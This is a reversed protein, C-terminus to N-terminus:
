KIKLGNGKKYVKYGKEKLIEIKAQETANGLAKVLLKQQEEPPLKTPVKAFEKTTKEGLIRQYEAREPGNFVIKQKDVTIYKPAVRPIHTTEGTLAFIDNIRQMEPSPNYENIFAPNILVNFPNNGEDQYTELPQGLTGYKDPLSSSLGPIRNKARNLSEEVMNPSYTEKRQNDALQKIQNLLTPVFSAPIGELIQSIGTTINGRGGSFLTQFGQMVPQDAFANIGTEFAQLLTGAIGEAKGDHADIDAGIALPIAQPQLWDYSIITDGKQPKLDGGFVLRKLASVNIRYDGFGSERNMEALDYDEVSKSTIIGLKHLLAGTGFLGASGVLARSFAETFAKQNFQNGTLTQGAQLIVKVFGAPSYDIGRMLLNAPTKPYKIIFDGVGFEKGGNLLRKIGSFLASLANDDQFTRYLGDLHAIKEMEETPKDVKAAKMQNRLSEDYAAKYFARDTARLEINLAKEAAGLLGSRFVKGKPLDFKSIINSTDIGKLADSLGLEFGEKAGKLQTPLSPLVKTRKGTVLSLGKDLGAGVVDSINEMATFGVNGVTNRIATKPNLLQAMTQISALKRAFPVPVQSAILDLIKALAIDKERGDTMAGIDEMKSKIEAMIEPKVQVKGALKGTKKALDRNIGQITKTYYRQMGEPTMKGWLRLSQIAQGQSTANESVLQILDTADEFRGEKNANQVLKLAVTNSLDTGPNDRVFREAEKIDNNKIIRNAWEVTSENTHVNYAGRSGPVMENILDNKLEPSAWDSKATSVGLSRVRQGNALEEMKGPLSFARDDIFLPKEDVKSETSEKGGPSKESDKFDGTGRIRRGTDLGASEASTNRGMLIPPLGKSVDNSYAEYSDFGGENKLIDYNQKPRLGVKNLIYDPDVFRGTHEFRKVAREAAKEIPLDVLRLHVNYGNAKLADRIGKVSEITRGVVPLVINDDNKFARYLVMDKIDNSENHVAGAFKGDNFEPLLEKAMDSDIILSGTDKAIPDSLASSKGAAPPGMIIYAQKNKNAAGTGYLNDVIEQRLAQREPTNILHTSPMNAQETRAKIIDPTDYPTISKTKTLQLSEIKPTNFKIDKFAQYGKQLGKGLLGFGLEGGGWLAASEATNKLAEPLSEGKIASEGAGMTAGTAAAGTARAALSPLGKAILSATVPAGIVEGGVLFLPTDTLMSTAGSAIKELAGQPHYNKAQQAQEELIGGANNAPVFKEFITRALNNYEGHQAALKLGNAIDQANTERPGITGSGFEPMNAETERLAGMGSLTPASVKTSEKKIVTAKKETKPPATFIAFGKAEPNQIGKKNKQEQSFIEFGM